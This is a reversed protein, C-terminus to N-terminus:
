SVLVGQARLHKVTKSDQYDDFVERRSVKKRLVPNWTPEEASKIEKGDFTPNGDISNNRGTGQVGQRSIVDLKDGPGEYGAFYVFIFEVINGPFKM